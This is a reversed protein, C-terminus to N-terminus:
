DGNKIEKEPSKNKILVRAYPVVGKGDKVYYLTGDRSAPTRYRRDYKGVGIAKGLETIGLGILGIVTFVLFGKKSHAEETNKVARFVFKVSLIWNVM